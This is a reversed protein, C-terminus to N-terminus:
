GQSEIYFDELFSATERIDFRSGSINMDARDGPLSLIREVEDAWSKEGADLPHFFVNGTLDCDKPVVSSVLCRLGAEQAEVLSVPLGEYLSPMVLIDMAQMWEEANKVAGPMLVCDAIGLEGAAEAIRGREAGDGVLVLRYADSRRRLEAFVRLLFGHNKVPKFLAVLGVVKAGELGHRKRMAGRVDERFRFADLDIGNSVVRFDRNGFMWRGADEGCAFRDTALLILLPRFLLHIVRHEWNSSHSHAIRTRAGGMKAALLDLWMISSGCHRHVVKYGGKKVIRYIAIFNKVPSQSKQPAVYIRGGLARIEDDYEGPEDKFVVFDFQVKERDIHRYANLLFTEVGGLQMRANAIHLVRM